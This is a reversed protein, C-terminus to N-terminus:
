RLAGPWPAHRAFSLEETPAPDVATLSHILANGLDLMAGHARDTLEGLQADRERKAVTGPDPSSACSTSSWGCAPLRSATREGSQSYAPKDHDAGLLACVLGDHTRQHRPLDEEGQRGGHGQSELDRPHPQHRGKVLESYLARDVIIPRGQAFEILVADARAQDVDSDPIRM